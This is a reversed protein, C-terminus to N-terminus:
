FNVRFDLQQYANNYDRNVYRSSQRNNRYNNDAYNVPTPCYNPSKINNHKYDYIAHSIYDLQDNLVHRERRNLHGDAGFVRKTRLLKKHKYELKNVEGRTLLGERVGSEIRHHQKKIKKEMAYDFNHHRDYHRGAYLNPSVLFSLIFGLIVILKNM